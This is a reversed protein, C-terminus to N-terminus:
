DGKDHDDRPASVAAMAPAAHDVAQTAARSKEKRRALNQRLKVALRAERLAGKAAKGSHHGDDSGQM